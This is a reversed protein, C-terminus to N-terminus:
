ENKLDGIQKKVAEMVEKVNAFQPNIIKDPSGFHGNWYSNEKDPTSISISNKNVPGWRKPNVYNMIAIVPTKVADAVHMPASDNGIFLDCKSIVAALQSVTTKGVADVIKANCSNIISNATSEEDKSGVFIFRSNYESDIRRILEMFCGKPWRKIMWESNGGAHIAINIDKRGNKKNFFREAYKMDKKTLNMELCKNSTKIGILSIMELFTDLEHRNEMLYDITHTFARARNSGKMNLGVRVAAGSMLSLFASFMSYTEFDIVIDFKEKKIKKILKFIGLLTSFIKNSKSGVLDANIIRDVNPGQEYIGGTRDSTLMTIEHKPFHNRVARIAPVSVLADGINGFKILLIKKSNRAGSKPIKIGGLITIM